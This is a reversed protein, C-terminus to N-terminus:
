VAKEFQNIVKFSEIVQQARSAENLLVDFEPIDNDWEILTPKAGTKDILYKYLEWVPDAVKNNHADILYEGKDEYGALHIERIRDSDLKDIIDRANIDHNVENVYANNIDFLIDCGTKISLESLFEAETMASENFQLYSSVNEIVLRRQLYEQIITVREAVNLLAEETYPFPLLDHMHHQGYRTFCLHDSIWEPEIKQALMKIRALYTMDLSDTGALSMGVCHFTLPYCDRVAVLQDAVLGGATLYNDALIEFWGIDPKTDLVYSTHQGRLGIGADRVLQENM